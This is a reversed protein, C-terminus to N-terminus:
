GLPAEDVSVVPSCRVNLTLPRCCIESFHPALEVVPEVLSGMAAGLPVEGFADPSVWPPAGPVEFLVAGADSWDCTLGEPASGLWDDAPEIPDVLLLSM